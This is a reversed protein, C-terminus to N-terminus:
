GAIPLCPLAAPGNARAAADYSSTSAKRLWSSLIALKWLSEGLSDDGSRFREYNTRAKRLDAYPALPSATDSLEGALFDKSSRIAADLFTPGLRVWRGRRWLVSEPVLGMSARRVIWKSWGNRVRQNWPLSRCFEILRLDLFPHRPEIGQSAAVRFYRELAAGIRPHTVECSPASALARFRERLDVRAALDPAIMSEHVAADADHDLRRSRVADRVLVPALTRLASGLLLRTASSWPGYTGRYFAAFGRAERFANRWAGSRILTKLLVDPELSAVADGDVGDLVSDFGLDKAARYVLLPILMTDDFPEEMGEIFADITGRYAGVHEPRLTVPVLGPLQSVALVHRTEECGPDGTIASLTTLDPGEGTRRIWRAFGVIASSDLGGSLMSATTGSLRCRVAATFISRFEEECEGDGRPRIPESPPLQWYRSIALRGRASTLQHGAPLRHVDRYFTSTADACELAPLLADAIRAENLIPPRGDIGALRRASLSFACHSGRTRYYFPVVGLRDRAGFREGTRPDEIVFAFDGALRSTCAEGWREFAKLALMLDSTGPRDAPPVELARAIEERNDLRVTGTITRLTM